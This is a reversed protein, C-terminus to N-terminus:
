RGALPPAPALGSLRVAAVQGVRLRAYGYGGAVTVAVLMLVVVTAAWLSRRRGRHPALARNPQRSMAGQVPGQEPRPRTPQPPRIPLTLTFTSGAGPASEAAGM